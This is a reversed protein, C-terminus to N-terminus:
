LSLFVRLSSSHHRYTYCSDVDWFFIANSLTFYWSITLISSLKFTPLWSRVIHKLIYQCCVAATLIYFPWNNEALLYPFWVLNHRKKLNKWIWHQSLRKKKSSQCKVTRVQYIAKQQYNYKLESKDYERSM